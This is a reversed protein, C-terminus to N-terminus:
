ANAVEGSLADLIRRFIADVDGVGDVVRLRGLKAFHEAVPATQEAYVRLRERVRQDHTLGAGAIAAVSPLKGFPHHRRYGTLRRDSRRQSRSSASVM